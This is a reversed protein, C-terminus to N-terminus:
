GSRIGTDRVSGRLGPKRTPAPELTSLPGRVSTPEVKPSWPSGRSSLHWWPGLQWDRARACVLGTSWALKSSYDPSVLLSFSLGPRRYPTASASGLEWWRNILPPPVRGQKCYHPWQSYPRTPSLGEKACASLLLIAARDWVLRSPSNARSTSRFITM